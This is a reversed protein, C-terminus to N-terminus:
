GSYTLLMFGLSQLRANAGRVYSSQCASFCPQRCRPSLATPEIQLFGRALGGRSARNTPRRRGPTRGASRWSAPTRWMSCRTNRGSTRTRHISLEVDTLEAAPPLPSRVNLHWFAHGMCCHSNLCSTQLFCDVLPSRAQLYTFVDQPEPLHDAQPAVAFFELLINCLHCLM